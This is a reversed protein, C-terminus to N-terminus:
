KEKYVLPIEVIVHTGKGQKGKISLNGSLTKAYESMGTIGVSHPDMIKEPDIGIGDDVIKLRLTNDKTIAEIVVHTANAHRAVNTLSEQIIRYLATEIHKALRKKPLDFLVICEIKSYEKFEETLWLVAAELGMDDLVSPRLDFSVKRIEDISKEILNCMKKFTKKVSVKEKSIHESLWAADMKVSTLIQGFEDHLERAIRSREEEIVQILKQSLKHTREEALKLKTIDRFDEVIGMLSGDPSRFPVAKLLFTAKTRDLREKELECEVTEEGQLIKNLPCRETNCLNSKFIEYCKKNTIQRDSLVNLNLFTENIRLINYDADIVWMANAATNFIQELESESKKLKKLAMKLSLPYGKSIKRKAILKRVKASKNVNQEKTKNRYKTKVM